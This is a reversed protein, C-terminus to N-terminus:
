LAAQGPVRAHGARASTAPPGAAQLAERALRGLVRRRIAPTRAAALRV